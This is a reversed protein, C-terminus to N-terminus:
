LTPERRRSLGSGPGWDADTTFHEDAGAQLQHAPEAGGAVRRATRNAAMALRSPALRSPALRSPGAARVAGNPRMAMAARGESRSLVTPSAAGLLAGLFGYRAIDDVWRQLFDLVSRLM